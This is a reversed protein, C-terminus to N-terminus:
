RHLLPSFMQEVSEALWVNFFNVHVSIKLNLSKHLTWKWVKLLTDNYNLYDKLGKVEAVSYEYYDDWKGEYKQAHIWYTLALKRM